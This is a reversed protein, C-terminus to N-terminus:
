TTRRKRGARAVTATEAPLGLVLNLTTLFIRAIDIGPETLSHMRLGDVTAGLSEAITELPVTPTAGVSDCYLKLVQAMLERWLRHGVELEERSEDSLRTVRFEILAKDWPPSPLVSLLFKGFRATDLGSETASAIFDEWMKARSEHLRALCAVFLAEKGRFNSYVAGTSYGARESIEDLSAAHYGRELFTETAADVLRSRTEAQKEAATRRPM